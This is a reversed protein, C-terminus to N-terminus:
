LSYKKKLKKALREENESSYYDDKYGEQDREEYEQDEDENNEYDKDGEDVVIETIEDNEEGEDEDGESEEIEGAEKIGKEKSKGKEKIQRATEDDDSSNLKEKNDLRQLYKKIKYKIVSETIQISQEFPDLFFDCISIAYAIHIRPANRKKTWIKNIIRTVYTESDENKVRKFLKNHCEM